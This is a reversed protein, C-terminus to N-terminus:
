RLRGWAPGYYTRGGIALHPNDGNPRMVWIDKTRTNDFYHTRTFAVRRGDPSWTPDDVEVSHGHSTLRRIGTGDWRARMIHSSSYGPGWWSYVLRKGDPSWDPSFGIGIERLHTGDRRMVFVSSRRRTDDCFCHFAVRKGRPAFAVGGVSRDVPFRVRRRDTGDVRITYVRNPGTVSDQGYAIRGRPLFQVADLELGHPSVHVRHRRSGDARAVWLSLAYGGEGSLFAVRSGSPSWSTELFARDGNGRAIVRRDSGDPNATMVDSTLNRVRTFAIRGNEGPYTATAPTGTASHVLLILGVGFLVRAAHNRM